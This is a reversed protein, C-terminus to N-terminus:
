NTIFSTMTEILQMSVILIIFFTEKIGNWNIGAKGINKSARRRGKM